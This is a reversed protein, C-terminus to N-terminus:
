LNGGSIFRQIYKMFTKHLYFNICKTIVYNFHIYNYM